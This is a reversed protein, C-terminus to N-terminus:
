EFYEMLRGAGKILDDMSCAYSMRLHRNSGFAEGPVLAVKAKSLIDECLAFTTKLRDNLYASADFFLFFAGDPQVFRLKKHGKFVSVVYDRRRKYEAAMKTVSSQDDVLAAIAAYQAPTTPNTIQQSTLKAVADALEKEAAVYGIRWGTMSYTKSVSNTTATLKKTEDSISAFSIHSEGNYIFKEYVEDSIVVINNEVVVNALSALENKTYVSGTPNNPTNLLMCKTRPTIAKRLRDPTIKFGNSESTEVVVPVGGALKVMETYSTWYPAPVIVEDGEDALVLLTNYIGHKSGCTIAIQDTSYELNNDRKLKTVVAQRLALIGQGSTYKTFGKRLADRAAEKIYEPTDFDPEGATFSVIDIGKAKLEKAKESLGITISSEIQSIRKAFRM